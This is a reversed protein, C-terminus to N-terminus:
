EVVEKPMDNILVIKTDVVEGNIQKKLMENELELKRIRAEKEKDESLLEIALNLAKTDGKSIQKILPLVLLAKNTEEYIGLSELKIKDTDKLKSDTWTKLIEAITKKNRRSEVSAKGGLRGLRTAEETTLTPNKKLNQVNAM